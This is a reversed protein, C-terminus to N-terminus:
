NGRLHTLLHALKYRRANSWVEIAGGGAVVSGAKRARRVVMIADHISRDMEEIFQDGGGRLILTVSKAKVCGTFINYRKSGIQREEFLACTGLNEPLLNTVSTQIAAGTAKTVRRL